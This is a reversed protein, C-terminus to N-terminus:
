ALILAPAGPIAVSRREFHWVPVWPKILQVVARVEVALMAETPPTVLVHCLYCYCVLSAPLAVVTNSESLRYAGSEVVQCGDTDCGHKSDPCCARDTETQDGFMGAAELNCHQSAGLWVTLALLAAIVQLLRPVDPV